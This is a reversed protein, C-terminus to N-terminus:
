HTRFLADSVAGNTTKNKFDLVTYDGSQELLKLREVVYDKKSFYVQISAMFEQVKKQKPFLEVLYQQKSEKFEYRYETEDILLEGKVSSMIMENVKQFTPNSSLDYTQVRGDDDITVQGQHLVIRYNLPANYAWHLSNPAKYVLSGESQIDASLVSLHKTQVFASQLSTTNQAVQALKKELLEPNKLPTFTQAVVEGRSWCLFLSVAVLLILKM